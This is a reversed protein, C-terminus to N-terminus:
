GEGGGWVGEGMVGEGEGGGESEGWGVSVRGKVVETALALVADGRKLMYTWLLQSEGLNRQEFVQIEHDQVGCCVRLLFSCPDGHVVILQIPVKM